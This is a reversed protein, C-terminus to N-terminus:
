SSPAVRSHDAAEQCGTGRCGGSAENGLGAMRRCWGYPDHSWRPGAHFHQPAKSDDCESYERNPSRQEIAGFGEDNWRDESFDEKASLATTTANQTLANHVHMATRVHIMNELYQYTDSGAVADGDLAELLQDLTCKSYHEYRQGM